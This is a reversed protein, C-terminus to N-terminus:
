GLANTHDLATKSECKKKHQLMGVLVKHVEVLTDDLLEVHVRQRTGEVSTHVHGVHVEPVPVVDGSGQCVPHVEVGLLLM